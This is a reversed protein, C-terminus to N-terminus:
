PKMIATRRIIAATERLRSRRIQVSGRVVASAQNGRGSVAAINATGRDGFFLAPIAGAV